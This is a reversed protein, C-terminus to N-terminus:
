VLCDTGVAVDYRQWNHGDFGVLGEWLTSIWLKGGDVVAFEPMNSVRIDNDRFFDPEDWELGDFLSLRVSSSNGSSIIERAIIKGSHIELISNVPGYSPGYPDTEFVGNYRNIGTDTGIWIDGNNAQFINLVVNSSLGDSTTLRRWEDQSYLLPSLLLFLFTIPLLLHKMYSKSPHIFQNTLRTNHPM